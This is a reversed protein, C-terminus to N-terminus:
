NLKPALWLLQPIARIQAPVKLVSILTASPVVGFVILIGATSGSVGLAKSRVIRGPDNL